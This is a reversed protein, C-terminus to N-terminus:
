LMKGFSTIRTDIDDRIKEIVAKSAGTVHSYADWNFDCVPLTPDKADAPRLATWRNRAALWRVLITVEKQQIYNLNQGVAAGGQAGGGTPSAPMKGGVRHLGGAFQIAGIGGGGGLPGTQAKKVPVRAFVSPNPAGSDVDLAEPHWLIKDWTFHKDLQSGYPTLSEAFDLLMWNIPWARWNRRPEALFMAGALTPLMGGYAATSGPAPNSFLRRFKVAFKQSEKMQNLGLQIVQRAIERYTPPVGDNWEGAPPAGAKGDDFVYLRGNIALRRGNWNMFFAGGAANQAQIMGLWQGPTMPDLLFPTQRTTGNGGAPAPKSAKDMRAELLHLAYHGSVYGKFGGESVYLDQLLSVKWNGLTRVSGAGPLGARRSLYLKILNGM